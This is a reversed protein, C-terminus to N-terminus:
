GGVCVPLTGSERRASVEQCTYGPRDCDADSDCPLLCVGGNLDVCSGGARCAFEDDCIVTCVGDPFRSGRVCISGAACDLEEMCPAGVARTDVACGGLAGCLPALCTLAIGLLWPRLSRMIM